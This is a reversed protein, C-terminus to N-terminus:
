LDGKTSKLLISHKTNYLKHAHTCRNYVGRISVLYAKDLSSKKTNEMKLMLTFGHKENKTTSGSNSGAIMVYARKLHSIETNGHKLV